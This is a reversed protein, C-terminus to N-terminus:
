GRCDSCRGACSEMIFLRRGRSESVWLGSGGLQSPQSLGRPAEEGAREGVSRDRLVVVDNLPKGGDKAPCKPKPKLTGPWNQPDLRSCSRVRLSKNESNSVNIERTCSIRPTGSSVRCASFCM